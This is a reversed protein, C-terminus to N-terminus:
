LVYIGPKRVQNSLNSPLGEEGLNKNLVRDQGTIPISESTPIVGVGISIAPRSGAALVPGTLDAKKPRMFCDHLWSYAKPTLTHRFGRGELNLKKSDAENQTVTFDQRELLGMGRRGIVLAAATHRNLSYMKAYKLNGLISTFAPQVEIVPIGEKEARMMIAKLMQRYVFNSKMRRFKHSSKQNKQFTLKEVVLPKQADKAVDVVKKALQKTDYDRKNRRAFQIRQERKYYHHELNGDGSIEVIAMGDPNCDIGIAGDITSIKPPSLEAWSMKIEFKNNRYLLRVDYCDLSLKWKDPIFLKGELWKGRTTPDNILLKNGIIRINPNGNRTKDGRSYLQNNRHQQWDEKSRRKIQLDEWLKKGGFLVHNDELSLVRSVADAIYRQNLFKMFNRKIYQKVANGKLGHKHIAQYASRSASSQARMLSLVINKTPESFWVVGHAVRRMPNVKKQIYRWFFLVSTRTRRVLLRGIFFVMISRTSREPQSNACVSSLSSAIFIPVRSFSFAMWVSTALLSFATWTSFSATCTSGPATLTFLSATCTSGLATLTSLSATWTSFSAMWTSFSANPCTSGPAIFTSGPAIFKWPATCSPATWIGNFTFSPATLSVSWTASPAMTILPTSCPAIWVWISVGQHAQIIM